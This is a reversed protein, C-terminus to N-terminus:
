VLLGIQFEFKRWSGESLLNNLRRHAARHSAPKSILSLLVSVVSRDFGSAGLLYKQTTQRPKMYLM